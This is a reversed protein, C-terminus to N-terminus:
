GGTALLRYGAGRITEIADRGFPRDLKNRLFRIYVEVINTGRDGGDWVLELIERKSVVTGKRRLLIELLARETPTLRIERDGRWARRASPDMRLDGATLVAALGIGPGLASPRSHHTVGASARDETTPMRM